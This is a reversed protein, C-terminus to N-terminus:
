GRLHDGDALPRAHSLFLEGALFSTRGSHWEVSWKQEFHGRRAEICTMIIASSQLAIAVNPKFSFVFAFQLYASVTNLIICYLCMSLVYIVATV